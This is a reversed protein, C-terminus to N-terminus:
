TNPPKPNKENGPQIENNVKVAGNPRLKFIASSVVEDGEKLGKLVTVQDGRKPGLTVFQQHVEKDPVGDPGQKDVVVYVSDGYPAYAISSSPIALVGGQEPLLVDVEVFMGPRLKHDANKVTGQLTINRTSADVLSDIATIEGDFDQADAGTARLKLKKGVSLNILNQQPLSFEVYIPDLSQLAVIPDGPKLYQGVNVMRIGISGDFPATIQKRSVLAKMEQVAAEMQQLQSEAIDWDAKAIAKTAVLDRKRDLDIKALTLRAEAARLQAEEQETDMTLLLDGKKVMTGSEFAIKSVIGALDTSVTVGNVAKMTGVSKMVPQWTEPKVVVTTVAAPPPAFGGAKSTIQKYKWFAIGAIVVSVIVLM